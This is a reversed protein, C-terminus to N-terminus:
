YNKVRIIGLEIAQVIASVTSSVYLKQNIAQLHNNVTRRSIQLSDAIAQQTLGEAVLHLVEKERDSLIENTKHSDQILNKGLHVSLLDAYLTEITLNKNFFGYAGSKIAQNKYELLDFGSLFIIKTNPYNVLINKAIDFGNFEGIHIDLILIDPQHNRFRRFLEEPDTTSQLTVDLSAFAIELSKAFLAHDDLMYLEM